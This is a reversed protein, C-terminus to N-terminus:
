NQRSYIHKGWFALFLVFCHVVTQNLMRGSIIITVFYLKSMFVKGNIIISDQPMEDCTFRRIVAEDEHKTAKKQFLIM